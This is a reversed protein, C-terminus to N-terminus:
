PHRARGKVPCADIDPRRNSEARLHNLLAQWNVIVSM